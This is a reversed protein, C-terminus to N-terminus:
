PWAGPYTPYSFSYKAPDLRYEEITVEDARVMSSGHENWLSRWEPDLGQYEDESVALRKTAKSIPTEESVAVPAAATTTTTSM